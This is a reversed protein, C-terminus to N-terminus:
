RKLAGSGSGPDGQDSDLLDRTAMGMHLARALRAQRIVAEALRSAPSGHGPERAECILRRATEQM